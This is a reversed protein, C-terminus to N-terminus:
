RMAEGLLGLISLVLMTAVFLKEGLISMRRLATRSPM